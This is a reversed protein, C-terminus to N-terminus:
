TRIGKYTREVKREVSALMLISNDQQEHESEARQVEHKLDLLRKQGARWEDDTLLGARCKAALLSYLNAVDTLTLQRTM